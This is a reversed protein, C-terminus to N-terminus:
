KAKKGDSTYLDPYTDKRILAVISQNNPQKMWTVVAEDTAGLVINDGYTFIKNKYIIVKKDRAEVFLLRLSTDDGTYLAIIKNPDKEAISCLFDTVESDPMGEMHRGLLRCSLVRGEYGREDDYIFNLAQRLLQRKSVRQQAELGPRDVYLEALGYRPSRSKRDTTGDILYDGKANKAWREPAIMNCNKIAEWIAKDRPNDLDFTQGDVITFVENEPIYYEGSNRDKDSLIMDGKSDVRRVCPPFLGTSPDKAPQIFYKMGVKGYVSRLVVVNSQIDSNKTASRTAM